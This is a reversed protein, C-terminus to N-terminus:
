AHVDGRREMETGLKDFAVSVFKERVADETIGRRFETASPWCGSFEQVIRATEYCHLELADKFRQAKTVTSFTKDKGIHHPIERSLHYDLFRYLFKGFFRKGIFSFEKPTAYQKLTKVTDGLTTEFLNGSESRYLGVMTDVASLRAMEALDTRHGARRLRQNIGEDFAVVVDLLGAKPSLGIALKEMEGDFDEKKASWIFKMLYYVAATVGLDKKAIELGRNAAECTTRAIAAPDDTISLLEIVKQWKRTIPLQGLRRHGM